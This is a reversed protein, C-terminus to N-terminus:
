LGLARTLEESAKHCRELTVSVSCLCHSFRPFNGEFVPAGIDVAGDVEEGGHGFVIDGVDDEGGGGRDVAVRGAEGVHDGDGFLAGDTGGVGIAAGFGGDFIEDGVMDVRLAEECLFFGFGTVVPVGGEEAVEVGGAGVGAADHAFVGLSYRIVEEGQERLDRDALSVLQEHEAVTPGCNREEGRSGLRSPGIACAHECFQGCVVGGFVAGGDAVVDVDEVEGAPVENREVVEAFM